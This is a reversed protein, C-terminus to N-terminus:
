FVIELNVIGQRVSRVFNILGSQSLKMFVSGMFFMNALYFGLRSKEILDKHVFFVFKKGLTVIIAM